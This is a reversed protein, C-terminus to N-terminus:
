WVKVATDFCEQALSDNFGKLVRIAAGLAAISRYNPPTTKTKCPSGDDLTGSTFGDRALSDPMPDYSLNDSETSADGLHTYQHLHSEVIGPIAHGVARFQAILALTGHEIQQLIDPKGDPHHMDVFRTQQNITTQDRDPKFDEWVHALMQVA